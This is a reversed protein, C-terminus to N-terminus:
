VLDYTVGMKAGGESKRGPRNARETGEEEVGDGRAVGSTYRRNNWASDSSASQSAQYPFNPSSRNLPKPKAPHCLKGKGM